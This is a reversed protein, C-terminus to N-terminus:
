SGQQRDQVQCANRAAEHPTYAYAGHHYVVPKCDILVRVGAMQARRCFGYDDPYYLGPELEGQAFFPIMPEIEKNTCIRLPNLKDAIKQLAPRAVGLVGTGVYDVDALLDAGIQVEVAKNPSAFAFGSGPKRIAMLPAVVSESQFATMAIRALANEDPTPGWSMDNDVMVLVDETRKTLFDTAVISRQRGIDCSDIVTFNTVTPWGEKGRCATFQVMAGVLSSFCAPKVERYAFVVLQVSPSAM